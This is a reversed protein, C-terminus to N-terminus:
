PHRQGQTTHKCCLVVTEISQAKLPMIFFIDDRCAQTQEANIMAIFVVCM